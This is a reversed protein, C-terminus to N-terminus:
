FMEFKGILMSHLYAVAAPRNEYTPSNKTILKVLDSAKVITGLKV